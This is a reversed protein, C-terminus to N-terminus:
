RRDGPGALQGPHDPRIDAADRLVRPLAHGGAARVRDQVPLGPTRQVFDVHPALTKLVTVDWAYEPGNKEPTAIIPIGVRISPDAAKM